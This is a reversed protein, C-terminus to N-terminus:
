DALPHDALHAEIQDLIAGPLWLGTLIDEIQVLTIQSGAVWRAARGDDVWRKTMGADKLQARLRDSRQADIVAQDVRAREAVTGNSLAGLPV